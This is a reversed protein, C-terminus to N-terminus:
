WRLTQNTRHHHVDRGRLLDTVGGWIDRMGNHRSTKVKIRTRAAVGPPILHPRSSSPLSQGEAGEDCRKRPISRVRVPERWWVLDPKPM